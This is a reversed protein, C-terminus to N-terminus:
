GVNVTFVCIPNCFSLDLTRIKSYEEWRRRPRELSSKGEANGVLVRRGGYSVRVGGM